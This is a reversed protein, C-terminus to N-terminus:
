PNLKRNIQIIQAEFLIKNEKSFMEESLLEQTIENLKVLFLTAFENHKYAFVLDLIFDKAINEFCNGSLKGNIEACITYAVMSALNGPKAKLAGSKLLDSLYQKTSFCMLGRLHLIYNGLKSIPSIDRFTYSSVLKIHGLDADDFFYRRYLNIIKEGIGEIYNEANFHSIKELLNLRFGSVDDRIMEELTTLALILKENEAKEKIFKNHYILYLVSFLVTIMALLSIILINM